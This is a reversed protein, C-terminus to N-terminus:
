QDTEAFLSDLDEDDIPPADDFTAQSPTVSTVNAIPSQGVTVPDTESGRPSGVYTATVDTVESVAPLYRSWPDFLDARSYGKSTRDGIRVTRPKV